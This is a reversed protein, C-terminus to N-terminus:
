QQQPLVQATPAPAVAPPNMAMENTCVDKFLVAGEPTYTKTLCTCRNTTVIPAAGYVVPRAAYIIRPYRWRVHWHPHRPFRPHIWRGPHRIPRHFHGKVVGVKAFGVKGVYGPKASAVTPSLMALGFTAAAALAILTSKRSM